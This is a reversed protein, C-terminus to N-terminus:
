LDMPWWRRMFLRSVKKWREFRSPDDSEMEVFIDVDSDERHDGRARSGFLIVRRPNVGEVITRTIEAILADDVKRKPQKAVNAPSSM